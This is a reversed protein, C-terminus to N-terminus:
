CAVGGHKLVRKMEALSKAMAGRSGFHEISSLCFVFDFIADPFELDDGSMRRVELHDRRYEFPAFRWPATLMEPTGENQPHDYLDTAIMKAIKNAFYFLPRDYGAGVALATADSTVVGLKELGEVCIAYEWPKRHIFPQENLEALIQVFRSEVRWDSLDPVRNLTSAGRGRLTAGPAVPVRPASRALGASASRGLLSFLRFVMRKM